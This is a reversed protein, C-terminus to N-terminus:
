AHTAGMTKLAAKFEAMRRDRDSQPRLPPQSHPRLPATSMSRRCWGRWTAEWDVKRAHAGAKAHWYDRFAEATDTVSADTSQPFTVRTWQRWDDPLTWDRDLRTGRSADRKPPGSPPSDERRAITRALARNRGNIENANESCVGMTDHPTDHPTVHPTVALTDAGTDRGTGQDAARDDKEANRAKVAAALEHEARRVTWGDHHMQLKGLAALQDRVKRYANTHVGLFKAATPDDSPLRRGTEFLYACVRIYLGEQELTLGICGSRWDSPFFRVFRAGTMRSM